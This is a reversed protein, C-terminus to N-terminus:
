DMYKLVVCMDDTAPNYMELRILGALEESNISDTLVYGSKTTERRIVGRGLVFKYAIINYNQKEEIYIFKVNMM